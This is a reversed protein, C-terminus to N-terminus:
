ICITYKKAINVNNSHLLLTKQLFPPEKDPIPTFVHTSSAPLSYSCPSFDKSRGQPLNFSVQSFYPRPMAEAVITALSGRYDMPFRELCS